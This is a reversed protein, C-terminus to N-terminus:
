CLRKKAPRCAQVSPAPVKKKEANISARLADMLNAVRRRDQRPSNLRKALRKRKSCSRAPLAMVAAVVLPFRQSFDHGNGTHLRAGTANRRPRSLGFRFRPRHISVPPGTKLPPLPRTAFTAQCGRRRISDAPGSLPKWRTCPQRSGSM